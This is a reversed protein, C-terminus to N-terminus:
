RCAMSSLLLFAWRSADSFNCSAIKELRIGHRIEHCFVNNRHCIDWLYCSYELCYLLCFVMSIVQKEITKQGKQIVSLTPNSGVHGTFSLQM